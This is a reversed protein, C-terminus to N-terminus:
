GKRKSRDEPPITRGLRAKPVLRSTPKEFTRVLVENASTQTSLLKGNSAKIVGFLGPRNETTSPCHEMPRGLDPTRANARSNIVALRPYDLRAQDIITDPSGTGSARVSVSGRNSITVVSELVQRRSTEIIQPRGNRQALLIKQRFIRSPIAYSLKAM